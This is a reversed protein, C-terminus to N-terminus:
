ARRKGDFSKWVSFVLERNRFSIQCRERGLPVGVARIRNIGRDADPMSRVLDGFSGLVEIHIQDDDRRM